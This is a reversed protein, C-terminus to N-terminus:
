VRSVKIALEDMAQNEIWRAEVLLDNERDAYIMNNGAGLHYYATEPSKYPWHYITYSNANGRTSTKVADTSAIQLM